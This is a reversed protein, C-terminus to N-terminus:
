RLPAGTGPMTYSEREYRVGFGDNEAREQGEGLPFRLTFGMWSDPPTTKSMVIQASIKSHDGLKKGCALIPANPNGGLVACDKNM